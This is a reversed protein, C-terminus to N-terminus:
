PRCAQVFADFLRTDAPSIRYEPHWQVGILFRKQPHEIGEIVGDSAWADAILGPAVRDVAQHHASNVPIEALGAIAALRSGALLKVTHGAETRPNPQEHALANAVRDPIHQILTGGLAVNLVQQGGCIGFVPRDKELAGRIIALEFQTRKAKLTVTAHREPAGFLAPDVDFAGGTILLGDIRALYDGVLEPEHPLLLPLGGAAAVCEAYNKRLAYWPLKSYGGPEESDLTIGIVPRTNMAASNVRLAPPTLTPPHVLGGEHVHRQRFGPRRRGAVLHRHARNQDIGLAPHQGSGAVPREFQGIGGRMRFDQRDAFGGFAQPPGPQVAAGEVHGQLGARHAGLRDGQGMKATQDKGGVIGLAAPDLMPRADEVLGGAVM